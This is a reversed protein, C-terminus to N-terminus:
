EQQASVASVRKGIAALVEDERSPALQGSWVAEILGREDILILTPTGGIKLTEGRVSVSKVGVNHRTLYAKCVDTPDLCSAVVELRGLAKRGVEAIRQYFPMSADCYKCGDRLVLLLSAVGKQARFNGLAPFAEGVQYSPRPQSQSPPRGTPAPTPTALRRYVVDSALVICLLAISGNTIQEVRTMVTVKRDLAVAFPPGRRGIM